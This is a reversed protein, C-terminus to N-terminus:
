RRRFRTSISSATRAARRVGVGREYRRPLPLCPLLPPRPPRHLRHLCLARAPPRRLRLPNRPLPPRRLLALGPPFQPDGRGRTTGPPTPDVVVAPPAPPHPAIAIASPPSALSPRPAPAPPSVATAAAPPASPANDTLPFGFWLFATLGFLACLGVAVGVNRIVDRRSPHAGLGLARVDSVDDRLDSPSEEIKSKAEPPTERERVPPPRGSQSVAASPGKGKAPPPKSSTRARPSAPAVSKPAVSSAM